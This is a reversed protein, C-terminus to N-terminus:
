GSSNDAYLCADASCSFPTEACRPVDVELSQLQENMQMKYALLFVICLEANCNLVNLKHYLPPLKFFHASTQDNAYGLVFM